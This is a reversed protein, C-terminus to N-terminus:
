MSGWWVRLQNTLQQSDRLPIGIVSQHQRLSQPSQHWCKGMDDWGNARGAVRRCLTFCSIPNVTYHFLACQKEDTPASSVASLLGLKGLQFTSWLCQMCRPLNTPNKWRRTLRVKEWANEKKLNWPSATISKSQQIISRALFCLDLLFFSTMMTRDFARIHCTYHKRWSARLAIQISISRILNM